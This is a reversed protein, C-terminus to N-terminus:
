AAGRIIGSKIVVKGLADSLWRYGYTQGHKYFFQHAKAELMEKKRIRDAVGPKKVWAYYASPSVVM